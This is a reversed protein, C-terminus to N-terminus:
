RRYLLLGTEQVSQKASSSNGTSEALLGTCAHATSLWQCRDHATCQKHLKRRLVNSHATKTKLSGIFIALINREPLAVSSAVSHQQWPPTKIGVHWHVSSPYPVSYWFKRTRGAIAINTPATEISMVTCNQCITM